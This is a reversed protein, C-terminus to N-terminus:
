RPIRRLASDLALQLTAGYGEVETANKSGDVWVRVWYVVEGDEHLQIQIFRTNLVKM